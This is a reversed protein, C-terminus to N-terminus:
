DINPQYHENYSILPKCWSRRHASYQYATFECGHYGVSMCIYIYIYIYITLTVSVEARQSVTNWMRRHRRHDKSLDTQWVSRDLSWRRWRRIHFVTDCRASTLAVKVTIARRRRYQASQKRQIWEDYSSYIYILTPLDLKSLPKCIKVVVNIWFRCIFILVAINYLYM